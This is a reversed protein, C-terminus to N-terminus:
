HRSLRRNGEDVDRAPFDWEKDSMPGKFEYQTWDNIVEGNATTIEMPRDDAYVTAYCKRPVYPIGPMRYMYHGSADPLRKRWPQPFLEIVLSFCEEDYWVGCRRLYVVDDQTLDLDRPHISLYFGEWSGTVIM